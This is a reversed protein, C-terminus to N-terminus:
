LRAAVAQQVDEIRVSAVDAGRHLVAVKKGLPAWQRPDTPGFIAVVPTGVAAALHSIGSDHGVFVACQKLAAALVPLSLGHCRICNASAPDRWFNGQAESDAPGQVVLVGLGRGKLWQALDLFRSTPWNKKPSGSGLHIAVMSKGLGPFHRAAEELDADNPYVRPPGIHPAVGARPLWQALFDTAHATGSPRGDAVILNTVGARKLNNTFVSDPDYLYSVVMEFSSFYRCLGPDLEAKPAFFIAVARQEMTRIANAYFRECALSAIHSYGMIELRMGPHEDRLAHVAPLALIFDGIAGGRIILASKM